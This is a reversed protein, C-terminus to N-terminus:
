AAIEHLEKKLESIIARALKNCSFSNIPSKAKVEVAAVVGGPTPKAAFVIVLRRKSTLEPLIKEEYELVAQQATGKTSFKWEASAMKHKGIALRLFELTNPLSRNTKFYLAKEQLNIIQSEAFYWRFLYWTISGSALLMLLQLWEPYGAPLEPFMLKLIASILWLPGFVAALGAIGGVVASHDDKCGKCKGSIAQAIRQLPTLELHSAAFWGSADGTMGDPASRTHQKSAGSHSHCRCHCEKGHQHTRDSNQSHTQSHGQNAKQNSNSSNNNSTNSQEANRSRDQSRSDTSGTRGQGNTGGSHARPPPTAPNTEFWKKLVDRANNIQKQKELAQKHTSPDRRHQDPHHIRSLRRWADNVQKWNAGFKLQLAGYCADYDIDAM